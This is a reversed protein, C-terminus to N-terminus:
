LPGGLYADLHGSELMRQFGIAQMAWDAFVAVCYDGTCGPTARLHGSGFREHDIRQECPPCEALTAKVEAEMQDLRDSM